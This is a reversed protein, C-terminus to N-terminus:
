WIGYAAMAVSEAGVTSRIQFYFREGAPIDVLFPPIFSPTVFPEATGPQSNYQQVMQTGTYTTLDAGVAGRKINWNLAGVGSSNAIYGVFILFISKYRKAAASIVPSNVPTGASPMSFAAYFM